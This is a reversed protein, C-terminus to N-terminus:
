YNAFVPSSYGANKSQFEVRVYYYSKGQTWAKDQWEAEAAGSGFGEASYVEEGDKVFVIRRVPDSPDAGKVYARAKPPADIRPKSGMFNDDLWFRIDMRLVPFDPERAEIFPFTNFVDYNRVQNDLAFSHRAFLADFIAGRTLESVWLGTTIWGVGSVAHTDSNGYAGLPLANNLCERWCYFWKNEVSRNGFDGSLVGGANLIFDMGGAESKSIAGEKVYEDLTKEAAVHQSMVDYLPELSEDYESFDNGVSFMNHSTVMVRSDPLLGFRHMFAYLQNNTTNQKKPKSVDIVNSFTPRDDGEFVVCRHGKAQSTFEYGQFCIFDPRNFAKPLFSVYAEMGPISSIRFDHDSLGFFDLKAFDRAYHYYCEPPDAGDSNWCHVHTDGFILTKNEGDIQTQPKPTMTERRIWGPRMTEEYENGVPHLMRASPTRLPVKRAELVESGFSLYDMDWIADIERDKVVVSFDWLMKGLGYGRNLKVRLPKSWSDGSYVRYDLHSYLPFIIPDSERYFVYIRNHNDVALRPFWTVSYWSVRGDGIERGEESLTKLMEEHSDAGRGLLHASLFESSNYLAEADNPFLWANGDFFKVHVNRMGNMQSLENSARVWAVWLNGDHDEILDASHDWRACRTVRIEEGMACSQDILRFHIDYQCDRYSDWVVAVKGGHRGDHNTVIVKPRYNHGAESIRIPESWSIGDFATLRVSHDEWDEYALWFYGTRPDVAVSPHLAPRTGDTVEMPDTWRGGDNHAAWIRWQRTNMDCACWTVCVKGGAADIRPDLKADTLGGSIEVPRCYKRGDKSKVMISDFSETALTPGWDTNVETVNQDVKLYSMWTIGTDRDHVHRAMRTVEGEFSGTDAWAPWSKANSLVIVGGATALSRNIFVRRTFGNNDKDSM